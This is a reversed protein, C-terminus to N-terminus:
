KSVMYADFCFHRMGDNTTSVELKVDVVEERSSPVKIKEIRWGSKPKYSFKKVLKAGVFIKFDVTASDTVANRATDTLGFGVLLLRGRPVSGFVLQKAAKAYPHFWIVDFQNSEFTENKQYSDLWDPAGKPVLTLRNDAKEAAMQTGDPFSLSLSADLLHKKFDYVPAKGESTFVKVQIKGFRKLFTQKYGRGPGVQHWFPQFASVVFIKGTSGLLFYEDLSRVIRNANLPNQGEKLHRFFWSPQVNLTDGESWNENLYAVVDGMSQKTPVNGFRWFQYVLVVFCVAFISGLVFMEWRKDKMDM